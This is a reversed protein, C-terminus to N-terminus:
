GERQKRMDNEWQARDARHQPCLGLDAPQGCYVPWGDRRGLHERCTDGGLIHMVDKLADGLRVPEPSM